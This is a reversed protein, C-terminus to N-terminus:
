ECSSFSFTGQPLDRSIEFLLILYFALQNSPRKIEYRITKRNKTYIDCQKTLYDRNCIIYIYIGIYIYM